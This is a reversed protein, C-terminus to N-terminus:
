LRNQEYAIKSIETCMEYKVKQLTDLLVLTKNNNYMM